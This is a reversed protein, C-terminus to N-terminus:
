VVFRTNVPTLKLHLRAGRADIGRANVVGNFLRLIVIRMANKNPAPQRVHSINWVCPQKLGRKHRRVQLSVCRSGKLYGLWQNIQGHSCARGFLQKMGSTLIWLHLSAFLSNHVLMSRALCESLTWRWGYFTSGSWSLNSKIKLVSPSFFALRNLNAKLTITSSADM